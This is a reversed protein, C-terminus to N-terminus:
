GNRASVSRLEQASNNTGTREFFPAALAAALRESCKSWRFSEARGRGRAILKDRLDHDQSVRILSGTAGDVDDISHLIAAEGAVEPLATENSCVVPTGSAMAEIVPIGFGEYRSPFFLATAERYLRPLESNDVSGLFRINNEDSWSPKEITSHGVVWVSLGSNRARLERAVTLIVDGGKRPCLGGVCLVYPKRRIEEAPQFFVDGAGNGVVSVRNGDIGVLEILRQKTFQSVTLFLDAHRRLKSFLQRWAFAFRRHSLSRSWPLDTEFANLDHVTVALRSKRVPVYAEAPCYVWDTDACWRDAIPRGISKWSWEATRRTFPLRVTPLGHLSNNAAIQGDGGLDDKAVLLHVAFNPIRSLRTVMEVSHRGVGTQVRGTRALHVFARVRITADLTKHEAM